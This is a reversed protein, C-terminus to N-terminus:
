VAQPGIAKESPRFSETPIGHDSGSGSGLTSSSSSDSVHRTMEVYDYAFEGLQCDDCGIAEDEASVRLSLGPVLNM